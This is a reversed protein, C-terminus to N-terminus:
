LTMIKDIITQAERLAFGHARYISNRDTYKLREGVEALPLGVLYHLTLIQRFRSQQLHSIVREAELVVKRYAEIEDRLGGEAEVMGCVAIEVRSSNSRSNLPMSSWKSTIQTGVENYHEILATLRKIEDEANRARLFYEKARM